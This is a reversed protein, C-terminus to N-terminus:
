IAERIRFATVTRGTTTCKQKGVPEVTGDICMETLRPAVYNRDVRGVLGHIFLQEAIQLATMPRDENRMIWLIDKRRKQKNLQEHSDNRCEITTIEGNNRPIM